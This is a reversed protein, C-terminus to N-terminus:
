RLIALKQTISNTKGDKKVIVKYLYVGNALLDGDEDKGDWSIKNFNIEANSIKFEKVLRGAVTFIKIKVEDPVQTLVFTFDTLHNFPNPYNFVSLIKSEDSTNFQVFYGYQGEINGIVEDGQIRLEHEGNELEPTYIFTVIRQITDYTINKFSSYYIRRNDLYFRVASTDDYPFMSQYNLRFRIEPKTSVYDGNVIEREDFFVKMEASTISTITDKIIYFKQEYINNDEFQENVKDNADITFKIKANGFGDELSTKYSASFKDKSSANINNVLTDLINKVFNNEIFVDAKVKVSDVSIKSINRLEFDTNITEGQVLSDKDISVVQSNIVLEPLTEYVAALSKILPSKKNEDAYLKAKIKLEPYLTADISDIKASDNQFVLQNLSDITSDNRIGYLYYKIEASSSTSDKKIISTWKSSNKLLPFEVKGSDAIANRTTEIIAMGDYLKKYVEPVTGTAAGKKGIMCWSERYKVQDILASGFNKIENRVATGASFGLVSQAGDDCIVFAVLTNQPLGQLYQILAPASTTSPYVFYRIDSPQYTISDIIATAIGWFFTNLLKEYGNYIISAFKGENAGASTLKLTNNVSDLTIGHKAADFKTANFVFDNTSVVTDVLWSINESSKFFSNIESWDSDSHLKTRYWYRKQSPLSQLGFKTIITDPGKIQETSNIFDANNSIQLLIKENDNLEANPNLIQLEDNLVAYHNDITLSRVSNAYVNFSYNISNNDYNLEEIKRDENISFSLSHNGALKKTPVNIFFDQRYDPSPIRMEKRFNEQSNYNDAIALSITDEIAKGYNKITFYVETSDQNDNPNLSQLRVNEITFDPSKPIAFEIIPDGFLLNCYNFVRNVDGTGYNSFLLQKSYFHTNGVTLVSDKLLAKYFIKPFSLSTSLYGYSSNGLYNIAQGDASQAIFLESFANVDPEAFRGTSCGFDTILPSRNNYNSKLDRVSTIGNDWTQTGSHGIYSVFLASEDIEKQFEEKTISGFNTPPNITKYFHKSYGGVPKPSVLENMIYDNTAKIQALESAKSPDGGSFLFYRKNWDDNNRSVYRKHKDLYVNVEDNSNAPIRGVLLLQLNTNMTDLTTYWVDSVPMGFGPVLNKKRITPASESVDKYDYNADGLLLLYKPKPLTWNSYAYSIFDKISEASPNGFNFEDYIEDVFVLRTRLNYNSSIFDAYEIASSQLLKNSVLIYDAGGNDQRINNFVKKRNYVPKQTYDKSVLLFKDNASITDSFILTGNSFDFTTIKKIVPFIKYLILNEQTSTLNTIKINKEGALYNEPIVILISDKLAKNYKLYEIDVWDILTQHFSATSPLGFIRYINKGSILNNSNFTTSFNITKKYDFDVTDQPTTSNLSSGIKHANIQTNAANSILRANIKVETNPIFDYAYFNFTKSGSNGIFQWTWVKHEQWFPLNTRTTVADYYWLRVDKEQHVKVKSEYLTDLTSSFKNYLNIREGDAGDWTLWVHSTDNYRDMYNNYDTGIPVIQTYDKGSYNKEAYFEIFDNTDFSNDSEGEVYIPIQKGKNYLKFSKPNITQPNLGYALLDNYGIRHIGDKIIGLKIYEKSYDIWDDSNFKNKINPNVSKYKYADESNIFLKSLEKDIEDLALNEQKFSSIGKIDIEINTSLLSSIIKKRWNFRHTNIKIEAVYFDKMWKYSIVEFEKDPYNESVFLNEDLTSEKYTILSDNIKIIEPSAAPIVNEITNYKQNTLKIEIKSNPPLVVLLNKSPLVPKGVDFSLSYEPYDIIKDKSIASTPETFEINANIRLFTNEKIVVKYQSFIIGVWVFSLILTNIIKKANM